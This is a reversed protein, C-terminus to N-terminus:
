ENIGGHEWAIDKNYKISKRNRKVGKKRPKKKKISVKNM